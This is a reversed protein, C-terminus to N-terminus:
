TKGIPFPFFFFCKKSLRSSCRLYLTNELVIKKLIYNERLLYNLSKTYGIEIAEHKHIPKTEYMDSCPNQFLQIYM